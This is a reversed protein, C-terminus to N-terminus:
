EPREVQGEVRAIEGGDLRCHGDVRDGAAPVRVGHQRVHVALASRAQADAGTVAPDPASLRYRHTRGEALVEFPGPQGPGEAIATALDRPPQDFDEGTLQFTGFHIGVAYRARLDRQARAADEPDMHFPRMKERPAYAGIPLFALDVPGFREHIERYHDAYASDGGFYVLGAPTRVLFSGWLSEDHDFLGRGSNHQAPTFVVEAGEGAPTVDWWDMEEVRPIGAESLWARDGLPVLVRPRDREALRRLTPFDLHDYHNHSILVLGIPPLRDFPIGPARARLPGAWSLPGVRESWVPDTLVTLGAVQVLVTAHNVFTVAVEGAAPPREIDLAAANSVTEDPWDGDRGFLVHWALAFFGPSEIPTPNTFREGDSQPSDPFRPSGACGVLLLVALM